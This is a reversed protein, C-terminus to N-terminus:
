DEEQGLAADERCMDSTAEVKKEKFVAFQNMALCVVLFLFIILIVIMSGTFEKM